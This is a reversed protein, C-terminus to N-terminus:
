IKIPTPVTGPQPEGEGEGGGRVTIMEENSLAFVAFVEFSTEFNNNKMIQTRKIKISVTEPYNMLEFMCTLFV